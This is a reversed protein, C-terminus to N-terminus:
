HVSKRRTSIPVNVGVASVKGKIGREPVGHM